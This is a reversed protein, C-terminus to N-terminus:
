CLLDPFKRAVYYFLEQVNTLNVQKTDYTFCQWGRMQAYNSKEYDRGIGEGSSHGLRSRHYTGGNVEVLVNTGPIHFDWRYQRPPLRVEESLAAFATDKAVEQWLEKFRQELSSPKRKSPKKQQNTTLQRKRPM